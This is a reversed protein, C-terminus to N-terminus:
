WKETRLKPQASKIKHLISHMARKQIILIQKKACVKRIGYDIGMRIFRTKQLTGPLVNLRLQSQWFILFEFFIGIRQIASALKSNM